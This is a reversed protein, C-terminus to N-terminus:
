EFYLVCCCYAFLMKFFGICAFPAAIFFTLADVACLLQVLLSLSLQNFYNLFFANNHGLIHDVIVLVPEKFMHFIYKDSNMTFFAFSM